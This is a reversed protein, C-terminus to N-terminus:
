FGIKYTKIYENYALKMDSTINSVDFTYRYKKALSYSKDAYILLRDIEEEDWGQKYYFSLDISTKIERFFAQTEAYNAKTLPVQTAKGILSTIASGLGLLNVQGAGFNPQAFASPTTLTPLVETPPRMMYSSLANNLAITKKSPEVNKLDKKLDGSVHFGIEVEAILYPSKLLSINLPESYNRPSIKVEIRDFGAKVFRLEDFKKAAIMYNGHKDTLAKEDTRLNLVLVEQIDTNSESVVKGFIYEQAFTFTSFLLFFALLKVKM